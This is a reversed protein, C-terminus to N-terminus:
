RVWGPDMLIRTWDRAERLPNPVQCQRSSHQLDCISSLDWTATATATTYAPLRLESEVGLKPVQMHWPHLGLICFFFTPPLHMYYKGSNRLHKIRERERKKKLVVDAAYPLEQALSWVPAAAAPRWWLWLLALDLGRRRGVGYSVAHRTRLGNLWALSWVRLRM